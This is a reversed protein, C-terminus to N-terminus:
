AAGNTGAEIGAQEHQRVVGKLVALAGQSAAKADVTDLDNQHQVQELAVRGAAQSMAQNMERMRQLDAPSMENILSSVDWGTLELYEQLFEAFNFKIGAMALQQQVATNSVLQAVLPAAQAAAQRVALKTSSTIEIKVDANYIDLIDGGYAKGDEDSLIQQIQEPTLHECIHELFAKLVPIFVLDVYSEMFYQSAETDTGQFAQVGSGTRMAQTPMNAGGENGIRRASRQESAAIANQAAASVDPAVLPKLEGETTIVKGPGISINQSGAGMGKLQQFAPNLVLALADVWTNLVGQQFRQEGGLLRGIGWGFMSNLVDIFACGYCGLSPEKKAENRIVIKRQLVTVVRDERNYQILELPQLLPDKSMPLRDDQKQFERTQNPQTAIMSNEAPEEKNALIMRLEDRTPIKSRTKKEGSDEDDYEEDYTPDERMDDLDYATVTTRIAFWKGKRPDQSPCTPDFIINRLNFAEVTPEAIAEKKADLNREIKGAEGKRYKETRKVRERSDWGDILGGFGYSFIGKMCLRSQEKLDSVRVAWRLLSQWVRAVEPKTKGVATVLYPDKGSGFLALHTRRLIKEVAELVVPLSLASRPKDSNPWPRIRVYGRIFDDTMEMTTILNKAQEYAIGSDIDAIVIGLATEDTWEGEDDFRVDAPLIPQQALGQPIAQPLNEFGPM